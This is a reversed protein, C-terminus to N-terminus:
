LLEPCWNQSNEPCIQPVGGHNMARYGWGGKALKLISELLMAESCKRGLAISFGHFGRPHRHGGNKRLATPTMKSLDQLLVCPWSRKEGTLSGSCSRLERKTCRAGIKAYYRTFSSFCIYYNLEQWRGRLFWDSSERRDCSCQVETPRRADRLSYLIKWRGYSFIGHWWKCPPPPQSVYM